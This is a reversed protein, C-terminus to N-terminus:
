ANLIGENKCFFFGDYIILHIQSNPSKYCAKISFPLNIERLFVMTHGQIGTGIVCIIFGNFDKNHVSFNWFILFIISLKALAFSFM